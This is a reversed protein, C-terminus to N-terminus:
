ARWAVRRAVREFAMDTVVALLGVLLAGQLIYATNFGSLGVIIPSGLTKAGVTSAIAATGINIIVSSRVGALWVPLALPVQLQWLAQWPTMGLGRAAQQMPEPVAQLGAVTGRLVPLVGYLALAILAPLEGFGVLPVAVALVAVPPFTQGMAALADVMPKFAQGAPRTVWIGALSGVLVAVLSSAGVLACHQWLLQAFPEQRYVPRELAPFLTAFLPESAPLALVLVVLALAAWALRDRAFVKAARALSM